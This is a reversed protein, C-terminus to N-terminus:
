ESDCFKENCICYAWFKWQKKAEALSIAESLLQCAQADKSLRFHAKIESFNIKLLNMNMDLTM